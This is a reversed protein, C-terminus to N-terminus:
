KQFPDISRRNYRGARKFAEVLVEESGLDEAQHLRLM